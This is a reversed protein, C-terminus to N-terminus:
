APHSGPEMEKGNTFLELQHDQWSQLRSKHYGVYIEEQYTIVEKGEWRGFETTFKRTVFFLATEGIIVAEVPKQVWGGPAIYKDTTELFIGKKPLEYPIFKEM